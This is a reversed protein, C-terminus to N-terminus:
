PHRQSARGLGAWGLGAVSPFARWGALWGTWGAPWGAWNPDLEDDNAKRDLSVVSTVVELIPELHHTDTPWNLMVANCCRCYCCCAARVVGWGDDDAMEEAAGVTALTKSIVSRVVLM